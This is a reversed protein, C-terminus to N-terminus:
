EWCCRYEGDCGPTRLTAPAPLVTKCTQYFGRRRLVRSPAPKRERWCAPAVPSPMKGTWTSEKGPRYSRGTSERGARFALLRQRPPQRAVALSRVVGGHALFAPRGRRVCRRTRGPVAGAVRGRDDGRLLGGDMAGDNSVTRPEHDDAARRISASGVGGCFAQSGNDAGGRPFPILRGTTGALFPTWTSRCSAM